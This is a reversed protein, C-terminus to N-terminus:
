KDKDKTSTTDQLTGKPKGSITFQLSSPMNGSSESM